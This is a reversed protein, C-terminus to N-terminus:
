PTPTAWATCTEVDQWSGGVGMSVSGVSPNSSFTTGVSGDFGMGMNGAGTNIMPKVETVWKRATEWEICELNSTQGMSWFALATLGVILIALVSIIKMDLDNMENGDEM